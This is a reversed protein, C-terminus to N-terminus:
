RSFAPCVARRHTTYPPSCAPFLPQTLHPHQSGPRSRNHPFGSSAPDATPSSLSTLTGLQVTSGRSQSAHSPCLQRECTSFASPRPCCATAKTTQSVDVPCQVGSHPVYTQVWPPDDWAWGRPLPAGAVWRYLRTSSPCGGQFIPFRPSFLSCPAWALPWLCPAYLSKGLPRDEPGLSPDTVRSSSHTPTLFGQTQCGTM